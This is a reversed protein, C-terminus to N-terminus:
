VYLEVFRNYFAPYWKEIHHLFDPMWSGKFYHLYEIPIMGQEFVRNTGLQGCIPCYFLDTVYTPGYEDDAFNFGTKICRMEQHCKFCYVM